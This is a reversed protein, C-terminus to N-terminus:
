AVDEDGDYRLLLAALQTRQEITLTLRSLAAIHHEPTTRALAAKRARDTRQEANLTRPIGVPWPM